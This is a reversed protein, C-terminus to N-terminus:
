QKFKNLDDYEKGIFYGFILIAIFAIAELMAIYFQFNTM